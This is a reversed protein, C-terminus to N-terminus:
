KKLKIFEMRTPVLFGDIIGYYEITPGLAVINKLSWLNVRPLDRTIIDDMKAAEAALRPDGIPINSLAEIADSVAQTTIGCSWPAKLTLQVEIPSTPHSRANWWADRWFIGPTKKAFCAESYAGAELINLKAKIGIKALYGQVPQMSAKMTPMINLQTEFGNPYGAEKLLAKAKEPDFPFPQPGKRM